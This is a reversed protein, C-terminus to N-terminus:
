KRAIKVILAVGVVAVAGIAVVKMNALAGTGLSTLSSAADRILSTEEKATAIPGQAQSLFPRKETAASSKARAQEEEFSKRFADVQAARENLDSNSVWPMYPPKRINANMFQQWGNYWGVWNQWWQASLWGDLRARNVADNLTEATGNVAWGQRVYESSSVLGAIEPSHGARALEGVVVENGTWAM